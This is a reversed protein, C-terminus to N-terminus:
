IKILIGIYDIGQWGKSWKLCSSNDNQHELVELHLTNCQTHLDAPCLLQHKEESM